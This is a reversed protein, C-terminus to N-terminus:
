KLTLGYVLVVNTTLVAKGAVLKVGDNDDSELAMLKGGGHHRRDDEIGWTEIRYAQMPHGIAKAQAAFRAKADDVALQFAIKEAESKDVIFVPTDAAVGKISTLADHVLTAKEIDLVAFECTWKAEYGMHSYHNGNHTSYPKVEFQTKLGARDISDGFSDIAALVEAMTGKALEKAKPGFEARTLVGVRFTAKEFTTQASGTGKVRIQTEAM